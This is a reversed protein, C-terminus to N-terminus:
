NSTRQVVDGAPSGGGVLAASMRLEVSDPLYTPVYVTHTIVGVNSVTNQKNLEEMKREMLVVFYSTSGSPLTATNASTSLEFHSSSQVLSFDSIIQM